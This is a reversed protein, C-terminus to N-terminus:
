PVDQLSVHPLLKLLAPPPPLQAQSVTGSLKNRFPVYDSFGKVASLFAVMEEPTFVSVHKKM